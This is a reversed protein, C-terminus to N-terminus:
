DDSGRGRGRGRGRGEDERGNRDRDGFAEFASSINASILSQNAATPALLAGTGTKFWRALDLTVSINDNVGTQIVMSPEFEFEVEGEAGSLFTFATGRYRGEVRVSVDRFTPNAALFAREAATARADDRVDELEFEISRYTGAPVTVSLPSSATGSLPLTVLMPGVDLRSCGRDDRSRSRDTSAAMSDPCSTVDARRLKVQDLVLQVKSIVMTDNATGVLIADGAATQAAAGTTAFSLSVGSAGGEVATTASDSCATLSALTLASLVPVIRM